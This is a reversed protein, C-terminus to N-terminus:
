FLRMRIFAELQSKCYKQTTQCKQSIRIENGTCVLQNWFSSKCYYAMLSAIHCLKGKNHSYNVYVIYLNSLWGGHILIRYIKLKM